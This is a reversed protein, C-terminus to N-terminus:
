VHLYVHIFPESGYGFKETSIVEFYMGTIGQVHKIEILDTFISIYFDLYLRKITVLPLSFEALFRKEFRISVSTLGIITACELTILSYGLTFLHDTGRGSM